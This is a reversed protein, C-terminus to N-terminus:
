VDESKDDKKPDNEAEKGKHLIICIVEEDPVHDSSAPVHIKGMIAIEEDETELGFVFDPTEIDCLVDKRKIIDGEKKYWKLIKNEGESMDPMRIKIEETYQGRDLEISNM